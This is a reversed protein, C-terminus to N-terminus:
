KILLKKALTANVSKGNNLRYTEDIISYDMLMLTDGALVIKKGLYEEYGVKTEDIEDSVINFASVALLMYIGYLVITLFTFGLFATIIIKNM